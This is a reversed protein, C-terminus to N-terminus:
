ADRPNVWLQTVPTVPNDVPWPPRRRHAEGGALVGGPLASLISAAGASGFMDRADLDVLWHLPVFQPATSPATLDDDDSTANSGPPAGRAM